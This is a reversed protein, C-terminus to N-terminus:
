LALQLKRAASLHPLISQRLQWIRSESAPPLAAQTKDTEAELCLGCRKREKKRAKAQADFSTEAAASSESTSPQAESTPLELQLSLTPIKEIKARM